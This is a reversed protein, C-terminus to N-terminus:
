GDQAEKTMTHIFANQLAEIETMIEPINLSKESAGLKLRSQGSGLSPEARVVVESLDSDALAARVANEQDRSVVVEVPKDCADSVSKELIEVIKYGFNRQALQPLIAAIMAEFLPMASQMFDQLVEDRTVQTEAIGKEVTDLLMRNAQEQARIADEWGAGYGQEFSRLKEDELRETDAEESAHPTAAQRFEEFLGASAM